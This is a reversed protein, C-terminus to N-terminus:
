RFGQLEPSIPQLQRKRYFMSGEILYKLRQQIM